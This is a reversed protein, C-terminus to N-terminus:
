EQWTFAELKKDIQQYSDILEGSNDIIFDADKRFAEDSLQSKMIQVIKEDSYGRATKLRKARIEEDAYVYWMEDVLSGYGAEILLAAEVFFLEIQPNKRALELERLLYEQVAPHVIENVKELIKEDAFIKRAMVEKDIQGDSGVVDQGLLDVLQTFCKTGPEKVMHAVQDALYIVCKYHKAIYKLIESKGAGIGGTIGIFILEKSQKM